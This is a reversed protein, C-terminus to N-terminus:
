FSRASATSPDFADFSDFATFPDFATFSDSATLPCIHFPVCVDFQHAFNLLILLILILPDIRHFSENHNYKQSFKACLFLSFQFKPEKSGCQKKGHTSGFRTFLSNQRKNLQLISKLWLIKCCDETFIKNLKLCGAFM